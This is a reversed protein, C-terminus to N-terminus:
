KHMVIDQYTRVIYREKKQETFWQRPDRNLLYAFLASGLSWGYASSMSTGAGLRPNVDTVVWTNNSNKMVQVCIAPPLSIVACIRKALTQLNSDFFIRAKTCVGGKTEIRERCITSFLGKTNFIEITIEPGHCFEEVLM